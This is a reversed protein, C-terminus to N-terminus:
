TSPVTVHWQSVFTLLVRSYFLEYTQHLSDCILTLTCIVHLHFTLTENPLIAAVGKSLINEELSETFIVPFGSGPLVKFRMPSRLSFVIILINCWPGLALLSTSLLVILSTRFCYPYEELHTHPPPASSCPTIPYSLLLCTNVLFKSETDFIM